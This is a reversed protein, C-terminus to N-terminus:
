LEELMRLVNFGNAYIINSKKSIISYKSKRSFISPSDLNQNSKLILDPNSNRKKFILFSAIESYVNGFRKYPLNKYKIIANSIGTAQSIIVDEESALDMVKDLEEKAKLVKDVSSYKNKKFSLESYKELEIEIVKIAPLHNLNVEWYKALEKIEKALSLSEYAIPHLLKEGFFNYSMISKILADSLLNKEFEKESFRNNTSLYSYCQGFEMLSMYFSTYARLSEEKNKEAYIYADIFIKSCKKKLTELESFIFQRKSTIIISYDIGSSDFLDKELLMEIMAFGISKSLINALYIKSYHRSNQDVKSQDIRLFLENISRYFKSDPFGDDTLTSLQISMLSIDISIITENDTVDKRLDTFMKRLEDRSYLGKNYEHKIKQLKLNEKQKLSYNDLNKNSLKFYYDSEIVDGIETYTLASLYVLFSNQSEKRNLNELLSLIEIFKQEDFLKGGHETLFDITKDSSTKSVEISTLGYIEGHDRLVQGHANFINNLRTHIKKVESTTLKNCTPIHISVTEQEKWLDSNNKEFRIRSYIDLSFDYFIEETEDDYLVILGCASPKHSLLYNLRSTNFQISKFKEGKITVDKLKYKSKIQIPFYNASPNNNISLEAHIDVGFDVSGDIVRSLFGKKQNFLSKTANVSDESMESARDIKPKDNFAM